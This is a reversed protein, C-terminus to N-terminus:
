VYLDVLTGCAAEDRSHNSLKIARTTGGALYPQGTRPDYRVKYSVLVLIREGNFVAESVRRAVHEAEHAPVAIFSQPGTLRSAYTFSVGVDSSVDQYTHKVQKPKEVPARNDNDIAIPKAKQPADKGKIDIDQKPKLIQMAKNAFNEAAATNGNKLATEAMFMLNLARPDLQGSDSRYLLAKAKEVAPNTAQDSSYQKLDPVPSYYPYNIAGAPSVSDIM